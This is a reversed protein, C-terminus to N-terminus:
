HPPALALTIEVRRNRARGAATDNPVAFCCNGEAEVTMATALDPRARVLHEHVVAARARALTDNVAAPGSSDTRGAITLRATGPLKAIIEQLAARAAPGLRASAFLFPVSWTRNGALPPVTSARPQKSEPAPASFEAPAPVSVEPTPAQRAAASAPVDLTKPTRRPCQSSVCQVFNAEVGYGIQALQRTPISAPSEEAAPTTPHSCSSLLAAAAVAQITRHVTHKCPTKM